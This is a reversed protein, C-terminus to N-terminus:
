TLPGYACNHGLNHNNVLTFEWAIMFRTDSNSGSMVYTHSESGRVILIVYRDLFISLPSLKLFLVVKIDIWWSYVNITYTSFSNAM